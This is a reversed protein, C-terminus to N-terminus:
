VFPIGRAAADKAERRSGVLWVARQGEAVAVDWLALAGDGVGAGCGFVWEGTSRPILLTAIRGAAYLPLAALKRANGAGFSFSAM